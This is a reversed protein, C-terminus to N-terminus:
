FPRNCLDETEVPKGKYESNELFLQCREFEKLADGIELYGKQRLEFLKEMLPLPLPNKTFFLKSGEEFCKNLEEILEYNANYHIFLKIDDEIIDLFRGYVNEDM